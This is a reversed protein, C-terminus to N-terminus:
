HETNPARNCPLSPPPFPPAVYFIATPLGEAAPCAFANRPLSPRRKRPLHAIAASPQARVLTEGKELVLKQITKGCMTAVMRVLSWDMGGGDATGGRGLLVLATGSLGLGEKSFSFYAAYASLQASSSMLQGLAFARLPASPFFFLCVFTTAIRLFLSLMDVASRLPLLLLNQALIYMPDSASELISSIVYIAFSERYGTMRTYSTQDTGVSYPFLM